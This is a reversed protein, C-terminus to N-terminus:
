CSKLTRLLSEDEDSGGRGLLYKNVSAQFQNKLPCFKENWLLFHNQICLWERLCLFIHSQFDGNPLMSIGKRLALCPAWGPKSLHGMGLVSLCLLCVPLSSRLTIVSLTHLTCDKRSLGMYNLFFHLSVSLKKLRASWWSYGMNAEQVWSQYM